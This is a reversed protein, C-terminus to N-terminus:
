EDFTTDIFGSLDTYIIHKFRLKQFLESRGSPSVIKEGVFSCIETKINWIRFSKSEIQVM